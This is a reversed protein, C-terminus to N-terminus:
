RLTLYFEFGSYFLQVPLYELLKNCYKEEQLFAHCGINSLLFFCKKLFFRNHTCRICYLAYISIASIFDPLLHFNKGYMKVHLLTFMQANFIIM